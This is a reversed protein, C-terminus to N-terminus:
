LRKPGCNQQLGKKLPLSIAILIKWEDLTLKILSQSVPSLGGLRVGYQNIRPLGFVLLVLFLFSAIPVIYVIAKMQRLFKSPYKDTSM